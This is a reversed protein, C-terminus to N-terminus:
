KEESSGVKKLRRFFGFSRSHLAVNEISIMAELLLMCLSDRVAQVGDGHVARMPITPSSFVKRREQRYRSLLLQLKNRAPLPIKQMICKNQPSIFM